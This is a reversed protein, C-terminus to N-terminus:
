LWILESEITGDSHLCIRRYAPPNDDLAFEDSGIEFQRCTSPTGIVHISQHVRDFSQHVHGFLTGRVKGSKAISAIFEAANDIGVTDLWKSGMPLPPHHLCVLVHEATTAGVLQDIRRLEEDAVHGAANDHVCSDIGIILWNGRQTSDCYQFPPTSLADRMLERVDHNGPVCITPLELPEVLDRFRQYAERSRDQIVDGTMAIFDAPWGAATIHTVVDRLSSHTVTGRLAESPDAFLHPDTFHLVRIPATSASITNQSATLLRQRLAL